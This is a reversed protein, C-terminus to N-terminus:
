RSTKTEDTMNFIEWFMKDLIIPKCQISVSINKNKYNVGISIVFVFDNIIKYVFGSVTKYRFLKSNNKITLELARKNEKLQKMEERKM